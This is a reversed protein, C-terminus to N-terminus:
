KLLPSLIAHKYIGGVVITPPHLVIDLNTVRRVVVYVTSYASTHIVAYVTVAM